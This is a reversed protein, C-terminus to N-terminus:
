LNGSQNGSLQPLARSRKISQFDHLLNTYFHSMQESRMRKVTTTNTIKEYDSVFVHRVNIEVKFLKSDNLILNSKLYIDKTKSSPMGQIDLSHLQM